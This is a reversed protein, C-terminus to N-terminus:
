IIIIIKCQFNQTVPDAISELIRGKADRFDSQLEYCDTYWPKSPLQTHAHTHTTHLYHHRMISPMKPKICYPVEEGTGEVSGEQSWLPQEQM